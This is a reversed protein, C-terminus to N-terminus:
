VALGPGHLKVRFWAEVPEPDLQMGVVRAIERRAYDDDQGERYVRTSTIADYTDAVAIIRAGMPIEKGKLGTPYGKGDFREHHHRIYRTGRAFDPFRATLRAGIEPHEKIHAFEEDTLRGPKQLVADRIGIKGVDHVRAALVIEETLDHSLGMERCIGETFIAVRRCHGFTYPDRDDVTDALAIVAEQTQRRLALQNRMARHLLPVPLALLWLIVVTGESAIAAVAGGGVLALDYLVDQRGRIYDWVMRDFRLGVQAWVVSFVMIDNTVLLAFAAAGLAVAGLFTDTSHSLQSGFSQFVLTGVFVGLMAQCSNFAVQRVLLGRRLGTYLEAPLIAACATTAALPPPLLLCAAFLPATDAVMQRRFAVQLPFIRGVIILPAVFAAVVLDSGAVGPARSWAAFLLAVSAITVLAILTLVPRDSREEM